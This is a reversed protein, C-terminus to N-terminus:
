NNVTNFLRFYIFLLRCHGVKLFYKTSIVEWFGDCQKKSDALQPIILLYPPLGPRTTIPPSKHEMPWPNSDWCWISFPYKECKNTTFFNNNTQFSSFWRFLPRRHGMEFFPNTPRTITAFHLCSKLTRVKEKNAPLLLCPM